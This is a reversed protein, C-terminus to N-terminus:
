VDMNQGQYTVAGEKIYVKLSGTIVKDLHWWWSNIPMDRKDNGAIILLSSGDIEMLKIILEDVAQLKERFLASRTRPQQKLSERMELLTKFLDIYQLEEGDWGGDEEICEIGGTLEDNLCQIMSETIEDSTLRSDYFQQTNKFELNEIEDNVFLGSDGHYLYVDKSKDLISYIEKCFSLAFFVANRDRSPQIFLATKVRSNKLNQADKSIDFWIDRIEEHNELKYFNVWIWSNFHEMAWSSVQDKADFKSLINNIKENSLEEEMYIVLNTQSM